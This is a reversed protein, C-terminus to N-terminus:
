DNSLRYAIGLRIGQGKVMKKTLKQVKIEEGKKPISKRALLKNEERRKKLFKM